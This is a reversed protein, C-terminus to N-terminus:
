RLEASDQLTLDVYYVTAARYVGLRITDGVRCSNKIRNFDDTGTVEMGNINIIIDGRSLGKSYAESAPNVSGIMAGRPIGLYASMAAPVDAVNLGLEPRGSIFGKEILEDVVPKAVRVPIACGLTPDGDYMASLNQDIIGIVKGSSDVLAGGTNWSRVEANTLILPTLMGNLMVGSDIASALGDTMFCTGNPLTGFAFLGEGVETNDSDGFSAPELGEAEISIVAIDTAEDFGVLSGRYIGGDGLTVQLEGASAADCSTIIHGKDSMIIGSEFRVESGNVLAVSVVSRCVEAYIQQNTLLQRNPNGTIRLTVNGPGGATGTDTQPVNDSFVSDLSFDPIKEIEPTHRDARTISIKVEGDNGSVVVDFTLVLHVFFVVASIAIAAILILVACRGISMRHREHKIEHRGSPESVSDYYGELYYDEAKHETMIIEGAGTYAM